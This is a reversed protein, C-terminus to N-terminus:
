LFSYRRMENIITRIDNEYVRANYPAWKQSLGELTYIRGRFSNLMDWRPDYLPSKLDCPRVNSTYGKLHQIHAIVGQRMSSFRGPWGPTSTFGAYNYAQMLRENRLFSTARCMQAIAFDHDIGEQHAEFIYWGILEDMIRDSANNNVLKIYKMITSKSSSGQGAISLAGYQPHETVQNITSIFVSGTSSYNREDSIPVARAQIDPINLKAQIKLYPAEGPFRLNYNNANIVASVLEFRDKHMNRAFKLRINKKTNDPFYIDLVERGRPVDIINDLTGTVDTTFEIPKSSHNNEGPVLIGDNIGYTTGNNQENIRISFPESLYYNLNPLENRVDSVMKWTLPVFKPEECFGNVAIICM